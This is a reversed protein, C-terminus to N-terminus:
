GPIVQIELEPGALIKCPVAAESELDRSTERGADFDAGEEGLGIHGSRLEALAAEVLPDDDADRQSPDGRKLGLAADAEVQPRHLAVAALCQGTIGRKIVLRTRGALPLQQSMLRAYFALRLTTIHSAQRPEGPRPPRRTSPKAFCESSARGIRTGVEHSMRAARAAATRADCLGSSGAAAPPSRTALM